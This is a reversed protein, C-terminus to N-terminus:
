SNHWSGLVRRDDVELRSQDEETSVEQEVLVHESAGTVTSLEGSEHCDVGESGEVDSLAHITLSGLM